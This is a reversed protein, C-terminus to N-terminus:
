EGIEEVDLTPMGLKTIVAEHLLSDDPLKKYDGLVIEPKMKVCDKEAQTLEKWVTGLVALDFSYNLTQTAKVDYGEVRDKVTVRGKVMEKKNIIYSCIVRRMDAEKSKLVKLSLELEKWKAINLM